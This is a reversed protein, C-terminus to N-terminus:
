SGPKRARASSRPMRPRRRATGSGASRRCCSRLTTGQAEALLRMGEFVGSELEAPTTPAKVTTLAGEDDMMVLDTFTGGTDVGVYLM